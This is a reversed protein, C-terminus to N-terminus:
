LLAKYAAVKVQDCVTPNRTLELLRVKLTYIIDKYEFHGKEGYIQYSTEGKQTAAKSALYQECNIHDKNSFFSTFNLLFFPTLEIFGTLKTKDKKSLRSCRRILNMDELDKLRDSVKYTNTGLKDAIWKGGIPVGGIMLDFNKALLMTVIILNQTRQQRFGLEQAKQEIYQYINDYEVLSAGMFHTQRTSESLPHSPLVYIESNPEFPKTMPQFDAWSNLQILSSPTHQRRTFRGDTKQSDTLVLFENQRDFPNIFNHLPHQSVVTEKLNNQSAENNLMSYTEM